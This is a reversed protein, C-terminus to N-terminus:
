GDRPWTTTVGMQGWVRVLLGMIRGASADTCARRMDGVFLHYQGEVALHPEGKFVHVFHHYLPGAKVTLRMLDSLFPYKSTSRFLSFHPSRYSMSAQRVTFPKAMMSSSSMSNLSPKFTIVPSVPAPFDIMM